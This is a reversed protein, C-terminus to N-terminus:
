AAGMIWSGFGFGPLGISILIISVFAGSDLGSGLGSGLCTSLLNGGSGIGGAGRCSNRCDALMFVRGNGQQKACYLQPEAKVDFFSHFRCMLVFCIWNPKQRQSM